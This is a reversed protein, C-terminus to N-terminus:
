IQTNHRFLAFPDDFGRGVRLLDAAEARLEADVPNQRLEKDLATDLREFICAIEEARRELLEVIGEQHLVHVLSHLPQM